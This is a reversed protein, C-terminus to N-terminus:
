IVKEVVVPAADAANARLQAEIAALVRERGARGGIDVEIGLTKKAYELIAAKDPIATLTQMVGAVADVKEGAEGDPKTEPALEQVQKGDDATKPAEDKPAEAPKPPEYKGAGEDQRKQEARLIDMFAAEKVADPMGASTLVFHLVKPGNVKPNADVFRMQAFDVAVHTNQKEAVYDSWGDITFDTKSMLYKNGM